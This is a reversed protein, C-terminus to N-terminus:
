GIIERISLVKIGASDLRRRVSKAIAAAGPTDSHICISNAIIKLNKGDISKIEEGEAIRLAYEAAQEPDRIVAGEQSRPVLSGDQMYRRDAFAEFAVKVGIRSAARAMASNYPALLVKNLEKAVNAITEAYDERSFAINYLAGHPKIHYVQMGGVRAIAELAGVQYLLISHLEHVSIEMARRGFGQLDPFSPHAGINIRREKCLKVTKEMIPPDGGHFGCALNASTIYEVLQEDEGIKYASFSEGMDSNIDISALAYLTTNEPTYAHCRVVTFAKPKRIWQAPKDKSMYLDCRVPLLETKGTVALTNSAANLERDLVLRLKFM